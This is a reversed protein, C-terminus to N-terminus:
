DRHGFLTRFPERHVLWHAPRMVLYDFAVGVPHLAYAVMRLPHGAREPDHDSAAAPGAGLAAGLLLAAALAAPRRRGGRGAPSGAGARGTRRPTEARNWRGEVPRTEVPRREM